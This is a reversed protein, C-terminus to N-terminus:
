RNSGPSGISSPGRSPLPCRTTPPVLVTDPMDPVERTLPPRGPHAIRCGSSDPLVPLRRDPLAHRYRHRVLRREAAGPTATSDADRPHLVLLHMHEFRRPWARVSHVGPRRAWAISEARGHGRPEPSGGPLQWLPRAAASGRDAADVAERLAGLAGSAALGRPTSLRSRRRAM